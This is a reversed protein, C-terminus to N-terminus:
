SDLRAIKQPSPSALNPPHVKTQTCAWPNTHCCVRRLFTRLLNQPPNQPLTRLLTRLLPSAVVQVTFFLESFPERFPNKSPPKWFTGLVGRPLTHRRPTRGILPRFQAQQLKWIRLSLKKRVSLEILLASLAFGKRVSLPLQSSRECAVRILCVSGDTDRLPPRLLPPRLCIRAFAFLRLCVSVFALLRLPSFALLRLCVRAFTSLRM